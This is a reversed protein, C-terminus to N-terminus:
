ELGSGEDASDDEAPFSITPASGATGTNLYIDAPADAHINQHGKIHVNNAELYIADPTISIRSSGVSLTIQEKADLGFKGGVQVFKNLGVQESSSMVVSTNMAGGVTTQYMAGISLAKALGVTESKAMLVTESRNGDIRVAENKGVRETRNGGVTIAEDHGVKEVRNNRVNIREDHGVTETRDHKM